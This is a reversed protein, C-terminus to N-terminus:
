FTIGLGLTVRGQSDNLRTNNAGTGWVSFDFAVHRALSVSINGFGSLATSAPSATGEDGLGTVLLGPARASYRYAGLGFTITVPVPLSKETYRAVGFIDFDAQTRNSVTTPSTSARKASRM